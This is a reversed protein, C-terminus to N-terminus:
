VRDGSVQAVMQRIDLKPTGHADCLGFATHIPSQEVNWIKFHYLNDRWEYFYLNTIIGGFEHSLSCLRDLFERMAEAYAATNHHPIVRREGELHYGVASPFGTESLYVKKGAAHIQSLTLRFSQAFTDLRQRRVAADELFRRSEEFAGFTFWGANDLPYANLSIVDCADILPDMWPLFNGDADFVIGEMAYTLPIHYGQEGLWQKYASIVAALNSALAPTFRKNEPEDGGERLENGICLGDLRVGLALYRAAQDVRVQSRWDALLAAADVDIGALLGMNNHKLAPAIAEAYDIDYARAARLGCVAAAEIQGSLPLDDHDHFWAGVKM